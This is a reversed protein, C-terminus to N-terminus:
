ESRLVVAARTRGAARAPLAAVLNAALFTAAVILLLSSPVSADPLVGLQEAFYRYGWTGAVIGAPLGIAVAIGAMSTAQWSVAATIDRRVFGITKLIALDRRRSRISTVLLHVLTALALLGLVGTLILPTSRVRAYNDIDAPRHPPQLQCLDGQANIAECLQESPRILASPLNGPVRLVLFTYAGPAVDTGGLADRTVAAGEGLATPIFSGQGLKPFVSRGVILLERTDGQIEVEVVDGIEADLRRLVSSGLVIEDDERPPRGDVLTPFAVGHLLDLGVAPVVEDRIVVSGYVGAAAADVGDLGRATALLQEPVEGFGVDFTYNWDQGYLRPTSVLRDLSGSFILAATVAVLAMTMGAMTSRIPVALRGRGPELALRVGIAPAPRQVIRAIISALLSPRLGSASVRAPDLRVRSARWAALSAGGVLLIVIAAAGAALLAVNVEVGPAPEALRAPGIPTWASVGVAIAVAILAGAGSAIATRALATALLQTRSMGLAALAPVETSDIWIQRAIAQSLVLLMAVGVLAAFVALAGVQPRLARQVVAPRTRNDAFFVGGADPHDRIVREANRRLAATQAGPELIVAAGDFALAAHDAHERFYAPTLTLAPLSDLAALPIVESTGVTVGVVHVVLPEGILSAGDFQQVTFRDGARVGLQEALFRNVTVEDAADPDAARGETVNPKQIRGGFAEDIPAYALCCALREPVERDLLTLGVGAVVALDAVEPLEAIADYYGRLGTGSVSLLVDEANAAELLRPFATETRRAGVAAGLVVGGSAGILLALALLAPWRRRLEARLRYWVAM